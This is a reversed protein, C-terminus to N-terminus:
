LALIPAPTVALTQNTRRKRRRRVPHALDEIAVLSGYQYVKLRISLDFGYHGLKFSLNKKATCPLSETKAGAGAIEASCAGDFL